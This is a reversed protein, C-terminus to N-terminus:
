NQGELCERHGVLDNHLVLESSYLWSTCLRIYLALCHLWASSISAEKKSASICCCGSFRKGLATKKIGEPFHNEAVPSPLRSTVMSCQTGTGAFQAMCRIVTLFGKPDLRTSFWCPLMLSFLTCPVGPSFEFACCWHIGVETVRFVLSRKALDLFVLTNELARSQSVWNFNHQQRQTPPPASLRCKVRGWKGFSPLWLGCRLPMVGFLAGLWHASCAIVPSCPLNQVCRARCGKTHQSQLSGPCMAATQLFCLLKWVHPFACLVCFEQGRIEVRQWDVPLMALHEPIRCSICMNDIQIKYSHLIVRPFTGASSLDYPCLHEGRATVFKVVFPWKPFSFISTNTDFLRGGCYGYKNELLNSWSKFFFLM